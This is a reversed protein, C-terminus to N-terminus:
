AAPLELTFTSGQGVTSEVSVQGGHVLAIHKVIALGLGTGGHERSRARDVRYFREFLRPLHERPIGVGVDRVRLLVRDAERTAELWVTSAEKSYKIANDLLNVIAQEILPANIWARLTPECVVAVTIHREAAKIACDQVAVQCVAALSEHTRPLESFEEGQELRSLSLLDEIIAHLRDAHRAVIDLFHEAQERDDLAGDRLTEIFGKITTVPTKLEHSVNAVFDRRLHELRRLETIDHLVVVAGAEKGESTRLPSAHMEIVQERPPEVIRAEYTIEEEGRTAAAITEVVARIRTIEWIPKGVSAEHDTCLMTGAAQNMHVVREDRDVAIVGEVMSGLVALLQNHEKALAEMRERLRLVLRNFADAIAGIEDHSHTRVQQDYNESAILAAATTTVSMLSRTMRRAVVFSVLLGVASAIGAGLMVVARLNALREDIAKLPLATRVYGILQGDRHVPLALYMMRSGVTHSYRMATGIGHARVDAVEPRDAHNDMHAAHEESDAVVVGDHQIVTFRTEIATGLVQLRQQLQQVQAHDTTDLLPGALARLLIARAQLARRTEQLADQVIRQAIIVGLITLSCLIVVVYGAYLKWLFRSRWM